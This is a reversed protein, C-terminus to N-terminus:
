WAHQCKVNVGHVWSVYLHYLLLGFSKPQYSKIRQEVVHLHLM